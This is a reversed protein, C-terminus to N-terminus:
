TEDDQENDTAEDAEEENEETPAAVPQRIITGNVADVRFTNRESAHEVNVVWAPSYMSLDELHLARRYTLIPLQVTSGQRIENNLFLVEIARTGNILQLPSGQRTAPGAYTQEFSIINGEDNVFLSVESTGDAIPIGDVEQYFVFRNEEVDFRNFVYEEGFLVRDSAVFSRVANLDEETYGDVSNGELVIPNSPFSEYYAGTEAITGTHTDSEEVENELLPDTNIQLSYVDQDEIETASLNEPLDIDSAEINTLTDSSPRSSINQIDQREVVGIVLYINLLGFAIIFIRAIRKFDM